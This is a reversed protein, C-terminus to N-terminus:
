SIKSSLYGNALVDTMKDLMLFRVDIEGEM